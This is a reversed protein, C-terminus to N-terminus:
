LEIYRLYRLFILMYPFENRILDSKRLKGRPVRCLMMKVASCCTCVPRPNDKTQLSVNEHIRAPTENKNKTNKKLIIKPKWPLM